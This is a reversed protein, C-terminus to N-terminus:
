RLTGQAEGGASGQCAADLAVCVRRGWRCAGERIQSGSPGSECGLAGLALILVLAVRSM